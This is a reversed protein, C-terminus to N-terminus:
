LDVTVECIVLAACERVEKSWVDVKAEAHHSRSEITSGLIEYLSEELVDALVTHTLERLKVVSVRWVLRV